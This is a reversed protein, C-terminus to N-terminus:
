SRPAALDAGAAGAASLGQGALGYVIQYVRARLSEVCFEGGM